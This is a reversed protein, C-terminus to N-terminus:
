YLSSPITNKYLVKSSFYLENQLAIIEEEIKERKINKSERLKKAEAYFKRSLFYNYSPEIGKKADDLAKNALIIKVKYENEYTKDIIKSKLKAIESISPIKLAETRVYFYKYIDNNEKELNKLKAIYTNITIKNLIENIKDVSFNYQKAVMFGQEALEKVKKYDGEKFYKEMESIINEFEKQKAELLKRQREKELEEQKRKEEEALRKLKETRYKNYYFWSGGFIGAVIILIFIKKKLNKSKKM